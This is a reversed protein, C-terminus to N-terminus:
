MQLLFQERVPTLSRLERISDCAAAKGRRSEKRTAAPPGAPREWAPWRRRTTEWAPVRLSGGGGGGGYQFGGDVFRFTTRLDEM